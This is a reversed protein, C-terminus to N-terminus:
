RQAGHAADTSVGFMGSLLLPNRVQEVADVKSQDHQARAAQLKERLAAEGADRAALAEKHAARLESVESEHERQCQARERTLRQVQLWPPAATSRARNRVTTSGYEASKHVCM